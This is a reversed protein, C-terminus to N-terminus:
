QILFLDAQQPHLLEAGSSTIVVDEELGIHIEGVDEYPAYLIPEVAFTQGEEMKLFVTTGYREPWDPGLLPGVDHVAFGIAHGTGHPPGEFGAQEFLRRAIADIETGSVGPKMAAVQLDAAKRATEWMKLIQPPPASEGARLVYATRQLDTSYGNLTIGFDIRV